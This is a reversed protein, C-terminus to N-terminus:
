SQLENFKKVHEVEPIRVSELCYALNHMHLMSIALIAFSSAADVRPWRMPAMPLTSMAPETTFTSSKTPTAPSAPRLITPM